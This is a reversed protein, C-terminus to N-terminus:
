IKDGNKGVLERLFVFTAGISKGLNSRFYFTASISSCDNKIFKWYGPNSWSNFGQSKIIGCNCSTSEDKSCGFLTLALVLLLVNKIKM